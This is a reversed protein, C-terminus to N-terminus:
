NRAPTLLQERLTPESSWTALWIGSFRASFDADDIQQLAVGNFFFAAGKGPLLVGTLRDGDRVDPFAQEMAALWRQAVANDIAGGRQMEKLSREAILRGRLTRQYRLDLALASQAYQSPDFPTAVWLQAEYISLGLFRMRATGMRQLPPLLSLVAPPLAATSSSDSASATATQALALAACHLLFTRRTHHELM